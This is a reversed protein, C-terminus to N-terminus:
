LNIPMITFILYFYYKKWFKNFKNIQLCITNHESLIQKFKLRNIWINNNNTIQFIEKNLLNLRLYFYYCIIYYYIMADLNDHGGINSSYFITIFSLFWVLGLQEFTYYKIIIM